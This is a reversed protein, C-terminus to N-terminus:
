EPHSYVFKIKGCGTDTEAHLLRGLGSTRPAPRRKRQKFVSRHDGYGEDDCIRM